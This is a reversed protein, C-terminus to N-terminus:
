ELADLISECMKGDSTVNNMSDFGSKQLKESVVDEIQVLDDASLNEFDVKLGLSEIYKRQNPKFM